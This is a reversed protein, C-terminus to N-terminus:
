FSYDIGFMPAFRMKLGDGELSFLGNLTLLVNGFPNMKVGTSGLLTTANGQSVVLRPFSATVIEPAGGPNVNAEFQENRVDVRGGDIRTTGLLDLAFTLKPHVALDFGLNYSLQDPQDVGEVDDSVSYGVNAHPSFRGATLSGIVLAGVRTAGTGLLDRYEGTPLRVDGAVAVRGRSTQLVQYKLRLAIDGVGSASGSQTIVDRSTGNPFVHIPSDDGTAIRQVRLDSRADLSVSVLPIAAGFDLRDTLGYNMVFSTVESEVKLLLSATVVDGEFWPNFPDEDRNSDEHTFVLQLGGDRLDIAGLEEFTYSSHNIGVNFRGSGITDAREGFVPGFSESSRTLTGLESDFTYTFGGGPSPLPYGSLQSAFQNSFQQLAALQPSDEGIFHAAHSPFGSDAPPDALTIGERLFDTLLDRLNFSQGCADSAFGFLLVVVSIVRM